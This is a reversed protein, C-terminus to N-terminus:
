RWRRRQLMERREDCIAPWCWIALLLWAGICAVVALGLCFAAFASM